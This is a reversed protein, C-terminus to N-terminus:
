RKQAKLEAVEKRLEDIQEMFSEVGQLAVDFKERLEKMESAQRNIIDELLKREQRMTDVKVSLEGYNRNRKGYRTLDVESYAQKLEEIMENRVAYNEQSGQLVHGMLMEGHDHNIRSNRVQRKFAKRLSHLTINGSDLGARRTAKKFNSWVNVPHLKKGTRSVFLLANDESNQHVAECHKQLMEVAETNLFTDYFDVKSRRLKTDIDPTIRLQLPVEGDKLQRRIMGYTLKCLANIRIGSQFAAHVITKDRLTTCHEAILYVEENTPVHETAARKRRKQNFYHEGNGDFNLQERNVSRYLSKVSCLVIAAVSPHEDKITVIYDWAIDVAENNSMKVFQEPTISSFECFTKLKLAYNKITNTPKGRLWKKVIPHSDIFEDRINLKVGMESLEPRVTM